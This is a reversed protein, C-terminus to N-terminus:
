FERVKLLPVDKGRFERDIMGQQLKIIRRMKMAPM